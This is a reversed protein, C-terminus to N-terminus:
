LKGLHQHFLSNHTNLEIARCYTAIAEELKGEQLCNIAKTSSPVAMQENM